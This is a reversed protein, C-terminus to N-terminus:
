LLDEPVLCQAVLNPVECVFVWHLTRCEEVMKRFSSLPKKKKKKKKKRVAVAATLSVLHFKKCIFYSSLHIIGKRGGWEMYASM